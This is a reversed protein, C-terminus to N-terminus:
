STSCLSMRATMNAQKFENELAKWAGRATTSHRVISLMSSSLNHVIQLKAVRDTHDCAALHVPTITADVAPDPRTASLDSEVHDLMGSAHLLVIM